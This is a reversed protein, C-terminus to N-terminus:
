VVIASGAGSVLSHRSLVKRSQGSARHSRFSGRGLLTLLRSGHDTLSNWATGLGETIGCGKVVLGRAKGTVSVSEGKLTMFTKYLLDQIM